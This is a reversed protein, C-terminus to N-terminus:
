ASPPNKRRIVVFILAAALLGGFAAPFLLGYLAWWSDPAVHKPDNPDYRVPMSQGIVKREDAHDCDLDAQFDSDDVTWQVTPCYVPPSSGTREVEVVTAQARGTFQTARKFVQWTAVPVGIVLPASLVLVALWKLAPPM